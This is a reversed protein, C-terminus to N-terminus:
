NNAKKKELCSKLYETLVNLLIKNKQEISLANNKATEELAYKILEELTM